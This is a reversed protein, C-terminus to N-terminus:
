GCLPDIKGKLANVLTGVAAIQAKVRAEIPFPKPTEITFSVDTHHVM